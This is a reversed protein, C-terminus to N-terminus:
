EPLSGQVRILKISLLAESIEPNTGNVKQGTPDPDVSKKEEDSPNPGTKRIRSTKDRIRSGFKKWGQAADLFILITVWFNNRLAESIHHPNNIGSGSGSKKGM